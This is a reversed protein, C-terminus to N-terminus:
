ELLSKYRKAAITIDFSIKGQIDKDRKITLEKLYVIEKKDLTDLIKVLVETTQNKFVAPLSIEDFKENITETRTDWGAEPAIGMDRCFQEFFGKITFDKNKDLIDKLRFEEDTMRKNDAIVRAAKEALTNLQKIKEILETKNQQIVYTVICIGLTIGGLISAILKQSQKSDLNQIFSAIKNLAEM